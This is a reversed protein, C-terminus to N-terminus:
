TITMLIILLGNRLSKLPTSQLGMERKAHGEKAMM